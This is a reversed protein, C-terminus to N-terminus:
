ETGCGMTSIAEALFASVNTRVTAVEATVEGTENQVGEPTITDDTTM